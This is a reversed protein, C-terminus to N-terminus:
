VWYTGRERQAAVAACGWARGLGWWEWCSCKAILANNELYPKDKRKGRLFGLRTLWAYQKKEWCCIVMQLVCSAVHHWYERYRNHILTKPSPLVRFYFFLFLIVPRIHSLLSFTIIPFPLPADWRVHLPNLCTLCTELLWEVRSRWMEVQLCVQRSVM